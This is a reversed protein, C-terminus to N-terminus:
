VSVHDMTIVVRAGPAGILDMAGGMGKIISGPIIWNALDGKSSCELGGLITLDVHGGRVMDFSTSSSFSAAGPLATITEKGANIFDPDAEDPLPYPGVGILGNEAHLSIEVDPPIYNSALTPIGIGLNVYMGNKFEKAARRIMRERGPSLNTAKISENSTEKQKVKLREMRKENNVAQIVGHVFIGPLHIEDPDLMGAEVIHETEAICVKGAMAVDPNANRATGRFVLNGQTDAKYAKVISLETPLSEEMVYEQNNFIKTIKPTSTQLIEKPNEPDYQVPIGGNAYM